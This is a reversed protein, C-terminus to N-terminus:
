SKMRTRYEVIDRVTWMSCNHVKAIERFTQGLKQRRYRMDLIAQTPLKARHHEAGTKM